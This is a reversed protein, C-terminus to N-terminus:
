TNYLVARKSELLLRVRSAFLTLQKSESQSLLDFLEERTPM